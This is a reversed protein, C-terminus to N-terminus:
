SHCWAVVAAMISFSVATFLVPSVVSSGMRVVVVINSCSEFSSRVDVILHPYLDRLASSVRHPWVPMDLVLVTDAVPRQIRGGYREFECLSELCLVVNDM